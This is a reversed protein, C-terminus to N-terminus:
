NTTTVQISRSSFAAVRRDAAKLGVWNAQVRWFVEDPDFQSRILPGDDIRACTATLTWTKTGSGQALLEPMPDPFQHFEFETVKAPLVVTWDRVESTGSEHRLNLVVYHAEPPAGISVKFGTIPTTADTSLSPIPLHKVSPTAAGGCRAFVHQAVTAEDPNGSNITTSGGYGVVYDTFGASWSALSPLKIAPIGTDSVPKVSRAIDVVLGSPLEGGVDFSMKGALLPDLNVDAGDVIFEQDPTLDLTIDQVTGTGETVALGTAIGFKKPEIRQDVGQEGEVAVLHGLGVPVGIRYNPGAGPVPNLPPLQKPSDMNNTGGLFVEEYFDQLTIGASARVEQVNGPDVASLDGTFTGFRRFVGLSRLAREIPVELRGSPTGRLTFASIVKRGDSETEMALTVNNVLGVSIGIFGNYDTQGAYGRDPDDGVMAHADYIMGTGFKDATYIVTGHYNSTRWHEQISYVPVENDVSIPLLDQMGWTRQILRDDVPRTLLFGVREAAVDAMHVQGSSGSNGGAGTLGQYTSLRFRRSPDIEGRHTLLTRVNTAYRTKLEADGLDLAAANLSRSGLQISAPLYYRGGTCGLNVVRDFGAADKRPVEITFRGDSSTKAISQPGRVLARFVPVFREDLIRGRVTTMETSSVAFCYLGGHQVSGFDAEIRGGAESGSGVAVWAGNTPDLWYLTATAAAALQLDVNPVSLKGGTAIEMDLPFVFVGQSTVMPDGTIDSLTPPLHGISLKGTRLAVTTAGSQTTILDGAGVTLIAGGSGSALDDVTVDAVLAVGTVQSQVDSGAGDPLYVVYDLEDQGPFSASVTVSGLLSSEQSAGYRGDITVSRTGDLVTPLFARGSRGTVVSDPVGEFAVTAGTVPLDSDDRVTVRYDYESIHKLKPGIDSGTGQHCGALFLAAQCVVAIRIRNM